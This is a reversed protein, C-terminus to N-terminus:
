MTRRNRNRRRQRNILRHLCRWSTSGDRMALLRQILHPNDNIPIRDFADNTENGVLISVEQGDDLCKQLETALVKPSSWKPGTSFTIDGDDTSIQLRAAVARILEESAAGGNKFVLIYRKKGM